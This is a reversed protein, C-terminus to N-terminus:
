LRPRSTRHSSAFAHLSRQRIVRELDHHAPSLTAAQFNTSSQSRMQDKPDGRMLAKTLSSGCAVM